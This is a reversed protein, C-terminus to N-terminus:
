CPTGSTGCPRAFAARVVESTIATAVVRADIVQGPDKIFGSLNFQFSGVGGTGSHVVSSVNARAHNGSDIPMSAARRM